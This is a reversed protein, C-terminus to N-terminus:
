VEVYALFCPYLQVFVSTHVHVLILLFLGLLCPLWVTSDVRASLCVSVVMGLLLGYMM